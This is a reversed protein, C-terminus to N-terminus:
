ICNLVAGLWGAVWTPSELGVGMLDEKRDHPIKQLLYSTLVIRDHYLTSSACLYLQLAMLTNKKDTNYM